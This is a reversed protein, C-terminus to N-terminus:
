GAGLHEVHLIYHANGDDDTWADTKLVSKFSVADHQRVRYRGTPDHTWPTTELQIGRVIWRHIISPADARSAHGEFWFFPDIGLYLRGSVPGSTALQPNPAGDRYALIGVDLVTFEPVSQVVRGDFEYEAGHVLRLQPAAHRPQVLSVIGFELAFRAEDGVAFDGYNGDQIIWASLGINLVVMVVNCGALTRAASDRAGSPASAPVQPTNPM